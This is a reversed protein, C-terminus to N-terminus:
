KSRGASKTDASLSPRSNLFTKFYIHTEDFSPTLGSDKIWQRLVDLALSYEQVVEEIPMNQDVRAEPVMREWVKWNDTPSDALDLDKMQEGIRLLQPSLHDKLAAEEIELHPLDSQRWADYWLQTIQEHQEILALALTSM